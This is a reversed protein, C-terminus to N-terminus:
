SQNIIRGLFDAFSTPSRGLLWALVHGNGWFGFQDYYRFMKLLSEVAYRSLGAARASRQWRDHALVRGKVERGLCSGMIGALQQQSLIEPGCLEYIAGIHGEETLVQAAVAAVDQLDVLSMRTELAYPVAYVGENVIQDWNALVNQMYAAPQLITYPVGSTFLLEEVRMKQWHHPM